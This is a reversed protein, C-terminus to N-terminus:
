AFLSLIMSAQRTDRGIKGTNTLTWATYGDESIRGNATKGLNSAEGDSIADL